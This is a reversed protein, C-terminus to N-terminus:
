RRVTYLFRSENWVYVRENMRQALRRPNRLRKHRYWYWRGYTTARCRDRGKFLIKSPYTMVVGDAETM